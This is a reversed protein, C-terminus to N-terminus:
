KWPFKKQAKASEERSSKLMLDVSGAKQNIHKKRATITKTYFTGTLGAGPATRANQKTKVWRFLMLIIKKYKFAGIQITQTKMGYIM